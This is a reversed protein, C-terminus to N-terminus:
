ITRGFPGEWGDSTLHSELQQQRRALANSDEYHEIEEKGDPNTIVLEIRGDGVERTECRTYSGHREYFWVM